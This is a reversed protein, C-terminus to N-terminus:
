PKQYSGFISVPFKKYLRKGSLFHVLLGLESFGKLSIKMLRFNIKLMKSLSILNQLGKKPPLFEYEGGSPFVIVTWSKALYNSLKNLSKQNFAKAEKDSVSPVKFRMYFYGPWNTPPRMIFRWFRSCLTPVIHKAIDPGKTTQYYDGLFVVNNKGLAASILYPDLGTPHNAYIILGQGNKIKPIKALYNIGLSAFLLKNGKGWDYKKVWKNFDFFISDVKFIKFLPNM